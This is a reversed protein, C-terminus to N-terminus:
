VGSAFMSCHLNTDREGDGGYEVGGGDASRGGKDSGPEGDIFCEHLQFCSASDCRMSHFLLTFHSSCDAFAAVQHKIRLTVRLSFLM